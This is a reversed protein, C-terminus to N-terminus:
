YYTRPDRLKNKLGQKAPPFLFGFTRKGLRLLLYGGFVIVAAATFIALITNVRSDTLGLVNGAKDNSVFSYTVTSSDASIDSGLVSRVMYTYTNGSEVESDFYSLMKPSLQTLESLQLEGGKQRYIIYGDVEGQTPAYFSLMIGKNSNLTAAEVSLATPPFVTNSRLTNNQKELLDAGTIFVADKTYTYNGAADILKLRYHYSLGIVLDKIDFEVIELPELSYMVSTYESTKGYELVATIIENASVKILYNDNGKNRRVELSSVVPGNQDPLRYNVAFAISSINVKELPEFAVAKFLLGLNTKPQKIWDKMVPLYIDSIQLGTRNLERVELLQGTYRDVIHLLGSIAQDQYYVLKVTDLMHNDTFMSTDFEVDFSLQNGVNGGSLIGTAPAGTLSTSFLEGELASTHPLLILSLIGLFFLIKAKM